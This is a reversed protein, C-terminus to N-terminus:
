PESNVLDSCERENERDVTLSSSLNLSLLVINATLCSLETNLHIKSLMMGLHTLQQEDWLHQVCGSSLGLQQGLSTHFGELSCHYNNM